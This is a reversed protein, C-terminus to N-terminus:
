YIIWRTITVNSTGDAFSKVRDRLDSLSNIWFQEGGVTVQKRTLTTLAANLNDPDHWPLAGHSVHNLSRSSCKSNPDNVGSGM